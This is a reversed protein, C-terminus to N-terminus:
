TSSPSNPYTPPCPPSAYFPSPPRRISQHSSTNYLAHHFALPLTARQMPSPFIALPCTPPPEAHFLPSLDSMILCPLPACALSLVPQAPLLGITKQNQNQAKPKRRIPKYPNPCKPVRTLGLSFSFINFLYLYKRLYSMYSNFYVHTFNSSLCYKFTFCNILIVLCKVYIFLFHFSM